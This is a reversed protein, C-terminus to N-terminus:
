FSLVLELTLLNTAAKSIAVTEVRGSLRSQKRKLFLHVAVCLVQLGNSHVHPFFDRDALGVFHLAVQEVVFFEFLLFVKLSFLITISNVSTFQDAAFSLSDSDHDVSFSAHVLALPFIVHPVARTHLSVAISVLVFAVKPLVFWVSFADVHPAVAFHIFALPFPAQLVALANPLSDESVGVDARPLQGLGVSEAHM